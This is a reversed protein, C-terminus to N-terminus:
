RNSLSGEVALLINAETTEESHTDFEAAIRGRYMVLIRSCVDLLEGIEDSVILVAAGSEALRGIIHLLEFKAHIDVGQTPEELLLVKPKTAALKAVVVKQQNGGSLREVPEDISPTQLELAEVYEGVLRRERRFDLFGLRNRIRGLIPLTVNEAISRVGVIGLGQRDRPLYAVGEHLAERPSAAAYSKGDLRVEGEGVAELGFLGRVLESKGSGELGTLGVIEGSGIALSVESFAGTRTLEKLELVVRGRDQREKRFRTLEEGTMLFVLKEADLKAPDECAVVRGDRLVTLRDCLAFVETLQHSIYVFAVGKERQSRIFRFLVDEEHRSLPATPEDLIVVQAGAFIVRGIDLMQREAVSLGEAKQRVNLAFGLHALREESELYARGWDVFGLRTSPLQGCLVNEAVSLGPVVRVNQRVIAVGVNKARVPTLAEMRQGGVVIEGKDPRSLGALISVLTSKGAGNKGVIGHVEGARVEFDVGKLAEVGPFAKVINNMVVVASDSRGLEQM